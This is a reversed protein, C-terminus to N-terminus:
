RASPDVLAPLTRLSRATSVHGALTEAPSGNVLIRVQRAEDFNAIVTQVLSYAAMLEHHTGVHWGETLTEGGLDVVVTGGTLLFAGRLLTDEPWLRLGEGTPGKMLERLVLPLAASASEPLDLSRTERILMMRPSEFYFYAVRTSVRNAENANVPVESQKRCGAAALLMALSVVVLRNV